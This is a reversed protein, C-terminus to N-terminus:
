RGLVSSKYQQALQRTQSEYNPMINSGDGTDNLTVVIVAAARDQIAEQWMAAYRAGGDPPLYLRQGPRTYQPMVCEIFPKGQTVFASKVGAKDSDDLPLFEYSADWISAYRTLSNVRDGGADLGGLDGIMYFRAGQSRANSLVQSQQDPSLQHSGFLWIIYRGDNTKAASRHSAALNCYDVITQAEAQMIESTGAHQKRYLVSMDIEPAVPMGLQDGAELVHQMKTADNFCDFNVADIGDSKAAQLTRVQGDVGMGGYVSRIGYVEHAWVLGFPPGFSMTRQNFMVLQQPSQAMASNGSQSAGYLGLVVIPAIALLPNRRIAILMTNKSLIM